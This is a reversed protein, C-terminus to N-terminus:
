LRTWCAQGSAREEQMAPVNAFTVAAMDEPKAVSIDAPHEESAKAVFADEVM